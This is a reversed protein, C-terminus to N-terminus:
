SPLALTRGHFLRVPRRDCDRHTDEEHVVVGVEEVREAREDLVLRGQRHRARRAVPQVRDLEGVLEFRVRDDDVQVHGDDVADGGDGPEPLIMRAEAEDREGAVRRRLEVLGHAFGAGVRDEHLAVEDVAEHLPDVGYSRSGRLPRGSSKRGAALYSLQYLM